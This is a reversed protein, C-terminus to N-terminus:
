LYAGFGATEFSLLVDIEHDDPLVRFIEVGADLEVDAGGARGMKPFQDEPLGAALDLFVRADRDLRDADGPGLSDDAVGEAVRARM